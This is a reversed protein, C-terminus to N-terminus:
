GTTAADPSTGFGLEHVVTEERHWGKAFHALFDEQTEKDWGNM